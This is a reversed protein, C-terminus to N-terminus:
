AVLGSYIVPKITYALIVDPKVQRVIRVLDIITAIDDVPNISARGIRLPYFDIGRQALACSTEPNVEGAAASVTHGCDQIAQLLPGRFLLLSQQKGGIVLVHM